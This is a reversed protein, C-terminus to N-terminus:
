ENKLREINKLLIETKLNEKNEVSSSYLHIGCMGSVMMILWLAWYQYLILVTLVLFCIFGILILISAIALNIQNKINNM